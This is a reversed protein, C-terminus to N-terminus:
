YKELSHKLKKDLATSTFAMEEQTLTYTRGTATCPDVKRLIYSTM